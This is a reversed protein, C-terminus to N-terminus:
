MYPEVTPKLTTTEPLGYLGSVGCFRPVPGTGILGRGASALRLPAQTFSGRRSVFSVSAIPSASSASPM